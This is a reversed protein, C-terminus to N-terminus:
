KEGPDIAVQLITDPYKRAAISKRLSILLDEETGYKAEFRAKWPHRSILGLPQGGQHHGPDCLPLTFMHGMRLGGRLIHHVATPRPALGDMRCCICGQASIWDMWAREQTTPARKGPRATEGKPAAVVAGTVRPANVPRALPVPASVPQRTYPKRAFTM